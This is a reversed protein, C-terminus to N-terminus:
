TSRNGANNFLIVQKEGDESLIVRKEFKGSNYEGIVKEWFFLSNTNKIYQQVEWSGPFRDFVRRAVEQGIHQRRYNKMIFFEAISKASPDDSAESYDNVLVFGAIKGDVKIFYAFREKETWYYDLYSYGFYGCENIEYGTYPSLDYEYLELLQRLISKKEEAVEILEIKKLEREM